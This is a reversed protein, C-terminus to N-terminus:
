YVKLFVGDKVGRRAPLGMLSKVVSAFHSPSDFGADMSAKTIREGQLIKEFARELQHLTLYKKIPIGVQESFLHSLRSASICLKDAYEEISHDECGCDKLMDLFSLIREDLERHSPLIGFAGCLAEMLDAYAEKGHHEALGTVRKILTEAKADDVIYYDSDGLLVDLALGLESVPEIITTFCVRGDTKFVHKVNKNVLVCRADPKEKGVKLNLKGETCVFFQMMAHSHSSADMTDTLISIKDVDWYIRNMELVVLDRRSLWKGRLSNYRM